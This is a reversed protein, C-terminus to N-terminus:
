TYEKFTTNEEQNVKNEVM